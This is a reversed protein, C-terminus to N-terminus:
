EEYNIVRTPIAAILEIALSKVSLRSRHETEEVDFDETTIKKQIMEILVHESDSGKGIVEYEGTTSYSPYFLLRDYGEVKFGIPSTNSRTRRVCLLLTQVGEKRCRYTISLSGGDRYIEADLISM